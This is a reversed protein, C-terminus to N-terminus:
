QTPHNQAKNLISILLPWQIKRSKSEIRFSLFGQGDMCLTRIKFVWPPSWEACPVTSPNGVAHLAKDQRIKLDLALQLVRFM